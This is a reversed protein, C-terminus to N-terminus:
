FCVCVFRMFPICTKWSIDRYILVRQYDFMASLQRNLQIFQRERYIYMCAHMCAHMCVYMCVCMYLIHICGCTTYMYIYICLSAWQQPSQGLWRKIELLAELKLDEPSTGTCGSTRGSSRVVCRSPNSWSPHLNRFM